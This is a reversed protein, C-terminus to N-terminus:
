RNFWGLKDKQTRYLLGLIRMGATMLYLTVFSNLLSPLLPVPLLPGVVDGVTWYAGAVLEFAAAAVLYHLPIRLISWVLAV